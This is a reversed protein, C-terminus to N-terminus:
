ESSPKKAKKKKSKKANGAKEDAVVEGNVDVEENADAVKEVTESM